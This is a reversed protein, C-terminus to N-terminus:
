EIEDIGIDKRLKLLFEFEQPTIIPKEFRNFDDYTIRPCGTNVYFDFPLNRLKEPTIDGIYVILVKMGKEAAIMKLKMALDLRKQGPKTSVLIGVKELGVCKSVQLYRKKVFDDSNVEIMEFNLPNVAYVKKGSHFSAGLAHFLGDGIFVIANARSGRLASYNCGLVQGPFRVRDGGKKLEVKFGANELSNKLEELKHCYQATSILVINKEPIKKIIEAVKGVDYDIYYPVYIVKEVEQVRTHAYHYLIDVDALLNLDIDCGGFCSDGSLIVDSGIEKCIELARMKLGDPLQLGIRM